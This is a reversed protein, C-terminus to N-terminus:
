ICIKGNNEITEILEDKNTYIRDIYDKPLKDENLISFYLIKVGNDKCLQYKLKDREITTQLNERDNVFSKVEEFHQRGQCEIGIKYDPLYFDLSLSSCKGTSLFPLERRNAQYIYKLDKEDLLQRIEREAHSENCIPCGVGNLIRGPNSLFEGHMKGNKGIKNCICTIKSRNGKNFENDINPFTIFPQIKLAKALFLKKRNELTDFREIIQKKRGCIPCGSGNLLDNVRPTWEYGCIKCKAKAKHKTDIYTDKIIEVNKIRTQIEDFTKSNNASIKESKCKQCGVGRLLASPYQYFEGHENGDKDKCHCILKIKTQSNIYVSNPAVTYRDGWVRFLDAKFEELTKRRAM